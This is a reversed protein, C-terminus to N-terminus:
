RRLRLCRLLGHLRFGGGLGLIGQPPQNPHTRAFAQLWSAAEQFFDAYVSLMAELLRGVQPASAPDRKWQEAQTFTARFERVLTKNVRDVGMGVSRLWVSQPSSVIFNTTDAGIDLIAWPRGDAATADAASEDEADEAPAFYNHIVYNHLALCDSQVEDVRLGAGEFRALRDALLVRRVGVLAMDLKATADAQAENLVAYQWALDALAVPLASRAEFAVAADLKDPEMPPMKLQELLCTGAPLGVCIRDGRVDNRDAFTQLTEDILANRETDGAQSLIKKHEVLDCVGIAVGGPEHRDLVLRVAKLGGSGLDLGWAAHPRRKPGWQAIRAWLPTESPSRSQDAGRGHQLGQLALGLAM